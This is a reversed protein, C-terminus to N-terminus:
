EGVLHYPQVTDDGLHNKPAAKLSFTFAVTVDTPGNGNDMVRLTLAGTWSRMDRYLTYMQEQLRGTEFNYYHTLRAGWNDNVRYFMTSTLLDSGSDLFGDRLYWHGIGWSWKENPAFTLQHFAMNLQEQNIDYRLQSQLLLWTRPRFSLESYLDGLTNQGPNPKLRWDMLLNWDMLNELQGERKTQLTNRLGFRLVNEADISDIDNYNPFSVPLLV